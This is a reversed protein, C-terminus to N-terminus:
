RGGYSGAPYSADGTSAASAEAGTALFAGRGTAVDWHSLFPRHETTQTRGAYFDTCAQYGPFRPDCNGNVEQTPKNSTSADSAFAPLPLILFLLALRKM